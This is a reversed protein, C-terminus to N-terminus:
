PGAWRISHQMIGYQKEQSLMILESRERSCVRNDFCGSEYDKALAGAEAPAKKIYSLGSYNWSERHQYNTKQGVITM